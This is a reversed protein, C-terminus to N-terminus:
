KKNPYPPLNKRLEKELKSNARLAENLERLLGNIELVPEECKLKCMFEVKEDDTNKIAQSNKFTHWGEIM